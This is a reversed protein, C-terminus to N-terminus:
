GVQADSVARRYQSRRRLAELGAGAVLVSGVGARKLRYPKATIRDIVKPVNAQVKWARAMQRQADPVEYPRLRTARDIARQAGEVQANAHRIVRKVPPRAATGVAWAGGAGVATPTVYRRYDDSYGVDSPEGYRPM